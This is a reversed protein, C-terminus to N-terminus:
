STDTYNNAKLTDLICGKVTVHEIKNSDQWLSALHIDRMFEAPNIDASDYFFPLM